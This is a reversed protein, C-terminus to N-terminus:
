MKKEWQEPTYTKLALAHLQEKLIDKLAGYVMQHQELLGKGRFLESVVVAQLHDGDGMPDDITVQAGPLAKQIMEKIQQPDAPM